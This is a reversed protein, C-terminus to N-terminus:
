PGIYKSVSDLDMMVIGLILTEKYMNHKLEDIWMM